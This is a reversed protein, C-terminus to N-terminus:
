QIEDSINLALIVPRDGLNELGSGRGAKLMTGVLM